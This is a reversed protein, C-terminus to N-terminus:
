RSIYIASLSQKSRYWLIWVFSTKHYRNMNPSSKLGIRKLLEDMTSSQYLVIVSYRRILTNSSNGANDEMITYILKCVRLLTGVKKEPSYLKCMTHFKHRIKEIAVTDPPSVDAVGMEPPSRTKALSLNEKLETWAGSRIQLQQLAENIVPKLPKLVCKHM